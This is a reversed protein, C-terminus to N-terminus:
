LLEEYKGIIFSYPEEGGALGMSIQINRELTQFEIMKNIIKIM